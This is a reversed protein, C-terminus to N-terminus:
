RSFVSVLWVRIRASASVLLLITSILCVIAFLDGYRVYFTPATKESEAMSVQWHRAATKFLLTEDSIRGDPAIYASIGANTARLLPLGTEVARLVVHALHQRAIPTPGFWADDAINIFASAGSRAMERTIDPFVSEFCIFS